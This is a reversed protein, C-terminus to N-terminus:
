TAPDPQATCTPGHVVPQNNKWDLRDIWLERGVTPDDVSGSLWAHYVIWTQGRADNILAQSGPGAAKCASSLIPNRSSQTCPGLPGKCTAYGVAYSYSNYMNGSFFLYYRGAHKWMTPAEVQPGEWPQNNDILKIPRGLLKMGNSSLQQAFIYDKMGISIGDSKWYLYLKRSGDQLTVPDIDGGLKPQCFFPGSSTDRFPGAPSSSLARGLCHTQLPIDKAAYYLAYKGDPLRQVAPAWVDSSVWRPPAPLADTLGGWHVLDRSHIEQVNYQGSNTAYAYNVKGVRLVFPDPFDHPYVPNTFTRSNSASTATHPRAALALASLLILGLAFRLSFM